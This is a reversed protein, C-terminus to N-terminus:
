RAPKRFRYVFKDSQTSITDGDLRQTYTDAPNHLMDSEAEFKFGAAEVEARVWAGEVRHLTGSLSNGSGAPAAHDIVVFVGGPKLASFIAKNMAVRDTNRGPIALDHYNLSTWVVDVPEPVQFKDTEQRMATIVGGYTAENPLNDVSPMGGPPMGGRAGGPPGGPPGGAPPGAAGPAGGPPPGASAGPAGPPPGGMRAPGQIAYVHGKSGVVKAFIRTFYGGGPLLDIVKDGPKMGSFAVSEAPLRYGDRKTDAAPRAPDAV